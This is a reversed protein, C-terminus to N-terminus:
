KYIDKESLVANYNADARHNHSWGPRQLAAFPYCVHIDIGTISTDIHCDDPINLFDDYFSEHMIYCHFGVLIKAIPQEQPIYNCASYIKFSKPKKSLFYEFGKESPFYCDDEIVCVEKLWKEKADRIIAKHSKNISEVVTVAPVPEWIKYETLGQRQLEQMLPEYKESRRNDYLINICPNDLVKHEM